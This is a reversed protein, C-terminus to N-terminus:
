TLAGKPALQALDVLHNVIGMLNLVIFTGIAIM